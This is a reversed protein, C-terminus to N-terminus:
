RRPCRCGYRKDCCAWENQRGNKWMWGAALANWKPDYIDKKDYPTSRFTSPVFQFLGYYSGSPDVACNNLTSECTAVCLMAKYDQNYRRSAQKIARKAERESVSRCRGRETEVSGRDAAEAAIRIPLLGTAVAALVSRRSRVSAWERILDDFRADEM